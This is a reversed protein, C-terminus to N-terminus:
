APLMELYAQRRWPTLRLIETEGWGYASALRHVDHLLRRAWQDLEDWLFSAIEFLAGWRHRCAPCDLALEVVALPDAEAMRRGLAQIARDPLASAPLAKGRRSSERLCREALWRRASGPQHTPLELLDRSTPLRFTLRYGRTELTLAEAAAVAEGTARLRTIPLRLELRARCAPCDAVSVLEPGFLRERLAILRRNREGLPLDALTEKAPDAECAALLLLARLATPRRAGQEWVALLTKTAPVHPAADSV